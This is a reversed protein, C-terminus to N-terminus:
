VDNLRAFSGFYEIAAQNYARAADDKDSFIGLYKHGQQVMIQARWKGAHRDWSVGKYGSASNAQLRRNIANQSRTCVRLNTRQNNLGDGDWHDIDQGEQAGAIVRHMRIVAKRPLGDSTRSMRAAYGTHKKHRYYWRWQNLWEYDADDVLAYKGQSLPIKKTVTKEWFLLAGGDNVPTDPYVSHVLSSNACEGSVIAARQQGIISYAM